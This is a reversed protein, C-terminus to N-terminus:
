ATASASQRTWANSVIGQAWASVDQAPLKDQQMEKVVLGPMVRDIDMAMRACDRYGREALEETEHDGLSRSTTLLMLWSIACHSIFTYDDRVSKAVAETRVQNYLGAVVGAVASAADQVPASAGGGLAQMRQKLMTEHQQLTAHFGQIAHLVDTHDRMQSEGMQHSFPQLGHTVLSHLDEIYKLIYKRSNDDM